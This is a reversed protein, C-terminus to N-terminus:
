NGTENDKCVAQIALIVAKDLDWDSNVAINVIRKIDELKQLATLCQVYMDVSMSITQKEDMKEDM